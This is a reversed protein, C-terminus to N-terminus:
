RRYFDDHHPTHTALGAHASRTLSVATRVTNLICVQLCLLGVTRTPTRYVGGHASPSAPVRHACVCGHVRRGTGEPSAVKSSTEHSLYITICLYQATCTHDATSSSRKMANLQSAFAFAFPRGLVAFRATEGKSEAPSFSSSALQQNTESRAVVSPRRARPTDLGELM